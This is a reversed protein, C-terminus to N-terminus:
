ASIQAAPALSKGSSRASAYLHTIRAASLLPTQPLRAASRSICSSLTVLAPWCASPFLRAAAQFSARLAGLSAATGAAGAGGCTLGGALDPAVPHGPQGNGVSGQVSCNGARGPDCAAVEPAAGGDGGGAGGDAGDCDVFDGSSCSASENFCISQAENAARLEACPEAM